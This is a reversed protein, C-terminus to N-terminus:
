EKTGTQIITKEGQIATPHSPISYSKRVVKYETTGKLLEPYHEWLILTQNDTAGAEQSQRILQESVENLPIQSQIITQILDQSLEGSIGDSCLLLRDGANLSLEYFPIPTPLKECGVYLELIHKGSHHEAMQDDILGGLRLANAVTHDTTIQSLARSSAQWHYLPSDGLNTVWCGNQSVLALVLTSGAKGWRNNEIMRRIYTNAQEVAAAFVESISPFTTADNISPRVVLQELLSISLKRLTEQSVDEGHAHGGIGDAVALLTWFSDSLPLHFPLVQYSDENNARQNVECYAVCCLTQDLTLTSMLTKAELGSARQM